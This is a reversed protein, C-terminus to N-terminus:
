VLMRSDVFNFAKSESVRACSFLQFALLSPLYEGLSDKIANCFCMDCIGVFLLSNNQLSDMMSMLQIQEQYFCSTQSCVLLSHEIILLSIQINIVLTLKFDLYFCKYGGIKLCFSLM